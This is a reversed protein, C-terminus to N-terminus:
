RPFMPRPLMPRPLPPFRGTRTGYRIKMFSPGGRNRSRDLTTSNGDRDNRADDRLLRPRPRRERTGLLLIRWPFRVRFIRREWRCEQCSGARDSRGLEPSIVEISGKTPPRAFVFSEHPRSQDTPLNKDPFTSPPPPQM